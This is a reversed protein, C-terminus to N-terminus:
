GGSRCGVFFCGFIKRVGYIKYPKNNFVERFCTDTDCPKRFSMGLCRVPQLFNFVQLCFDILACVVDDCLQKKIVPIEKIEDTTTGKSAYVDGNNGSNHRYGCFFAQDSHGLKGESRPNRCCKEFLHEFRRIVFFYSTYPDFPSGFLGSVKDVVVDFANM